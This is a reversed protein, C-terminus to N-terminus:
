SGRTVPQARPPAPTAQVPPAGSMVVERRPGRFGLLRAAGVVAILAVGFNVPILWVPLGDPYALVEGATVFINLLALPLLFKWGLDMIQDVRLRPITARVWIFASIIMGTKLAVWLYGPMPEPGKWGSLFLTAIIASFGMIAAYEGIQIVGWKMGSYETHFGSVLESDAELLDFPARNLEASVAVLFVLFGLPQWLLNPVFRQGEVITSLNLSGALLVVGVIALVLPIEYSVVLAVVRMAGFLSFKNNSSWGGMFVGIEAAGTIAVVALIGVDLDAMVAHPAWPILAFMLLVPAAFALPAMAFVLKDAVRPTIDEKTMLKIGDALPQLLGFIGVRNPGVRHQFRGLLKRELLIVYAIGIVAVNIIVLGGALGLVAFILWDPFGGPSRGGMAHCMADGVRPIFNIGWERWLGMGDWFGPQQCGTALHEIPM